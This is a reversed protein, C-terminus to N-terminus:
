IKKGVVRIIEQSSTIGQYVKEMASEELRKEKKNKLITTIKSPHENEIIASRVDEDFPVVEYIGVRGIYGSQRCDDCGKGIYFNNEESNQIDLLKSENPTLQYPTKCSPCIKRVLRCSIIGMISNSIVSRPIGMEILRAVVAFVSLTHFSAFLMRGTLAAQIAIQASDSDRIEGVMVIDPDQRLVARLAKAFTLGVVDQVQTQRVGDMQLEVPDEITIINATPKNLINLISYLLTTKGSGSPGTILIMGYPQTILSNVKELQGEDFGLSDLNILSDERNLIRLVVAEGYVTPFTSVRINFIRFGGLGGYRFEFHGDLPLRHETIDLNSVVKIRSIIPEQREISLTESVYLLGDVRYRIRLNDRDPEIHVDSAKAEIAKSLLNNLWEESVATSILDQSTTM